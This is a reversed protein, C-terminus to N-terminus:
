RRVFFPREPYRRMIFGTDNHKLHTESWLLRFLKLDPVDEGYAPPLANCSGHHSVWFEFGRDLVLKALERKFRLDVM